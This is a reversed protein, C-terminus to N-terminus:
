HPRVCPVGSGTLQLFGPSPRPTFFLHAQLHLGARSALSSGLVTWTMPHRHSGPPPPPFSFSCVM